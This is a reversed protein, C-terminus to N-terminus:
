AVVAHRDYPIVHASNDGLIVKHKAGQGTHVLMTNIATVVKSAFENNRKKYPANKDYVMSANAISDATNNGINDSHGPVKKVTIICGREIAEHVARGVLYGGSGDNNKNENWTLIRKFVYESDTHIVLHRHPAAFKEIALMVAHSEVLNSSKTQAVRTRYMTGDQNVCVGYGYKGKDSVSGDTYVNQEIAFQKRLEYFFDSSEKGSVKNLRNISEHYTMEAKIKASQLLYQTYLCDTDDTPIIKVNCKAVLKKIAKTEALESPIYAEVTRGNSTKVAELIRNRYVGIISRKKKDNSTHTKMCEDFEGNLYTCVAVASFNFICTDGRKNDYLDVKKTYEFHQVHLKLPTNMISEKKVINCYSVDVIVRPM